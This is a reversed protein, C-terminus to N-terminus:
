VTKARMLCFVGFNIINENFCKNLSKNPLRYLFFLAFAFTKASRKQLKQQKLAKYYKIIM